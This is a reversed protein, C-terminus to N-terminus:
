VGKGNKILGVVCLVKSVEPRRAEPIESNREGSTLELKSETVLELSLATGPM